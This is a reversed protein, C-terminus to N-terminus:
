KGGNEALNNIKEAFGDDMVALCMASPKGAAQGPMTMRIIGVGNHRCMSCLRDYSNDSLESDTIILRAKGRKVANEVAQAGFCLKGARAAFGLMNLAKTDNDKM